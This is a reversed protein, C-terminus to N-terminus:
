RNPVSLRTTSSSNCASTVEFRPSRSESPCPAATEARARGACWRGTPSPPRAPRDAGSERAAAPALAFRAHGIEHDRRRRRMRMDGHEVGCAIRQMRPGPWERAARAERLDVLQDLLVLRRQHEDVGAHLGFHDELRQPADVVVVEGDRQMVAREVDLLAALDLVGHGRLLSRATTHVEDSSRPMSQPSISRTMLTPAGFPEDRRSCRM